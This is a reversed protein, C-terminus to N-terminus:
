RARLVPPTFALSNGGIGRSEIETGLVGMNLGSFKESPLGLRFDSNMIGTIASKGTSLKL